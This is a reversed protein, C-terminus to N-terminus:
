TEGPGRFNDGVERKYDEDGEKDRNSKFDIVSV